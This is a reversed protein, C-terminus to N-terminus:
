KSKEIPNLAIIDLITCLQMLNLNVGKNVLLWELHMFSSVDKHKPIRMSVSNCSGFLEKNPVLLDFMSPNEPEESHTIQEVLIRYVLNVRYIKDRIMMNIQNDLNFGEPLYPGYVVPSQVKADEILDFAEEHKLSAERLAKFLTEYAQYCQYPSPLLSFMEHRVGEYVQEMLKMPLIWNSMNISLFHPDMLLGNDTAIKVIRDFTKANVFDFNYM